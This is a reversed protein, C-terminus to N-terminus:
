MHMAGLLLATINTKKIKSIKNISVTYRQMHLMRPPPLHPMHGASEMQM